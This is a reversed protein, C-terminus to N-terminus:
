VIPMESISINYRACFEKFVENIPRSDDHHCQGFYIAGRILKQEKTLYDSLAPKKNENM